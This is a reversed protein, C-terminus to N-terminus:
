HKKISICFELIVYYYYLMRIDYLVRHIFDRPIERLYNCVFDINTKLDESTGNREIKACWAFNEPIGRTHVHLMQLLLM